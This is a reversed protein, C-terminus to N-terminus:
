AVDEADRERVRRQLEVDEGDQQVEPEVRQRDSTEQRGDRDDRPQNRRVQEPAVVGARAGGAGRSREQQRQVQLHELPVDRGAADDAREGEQVRQRRDVGAIVHERAPAAARHEGAAVHWELV